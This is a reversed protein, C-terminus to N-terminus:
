KWQVIPHSSYPLGWQGILFFEPLRLPTQLYTSAIYTCFSLVENQETQINKSPLTNIKWNKFSLFNHKKSMITFKIMWFNLFLCVERFFYVFQAFSLERTQPFLLLCFGFIECGLGWLDQKAWGLLCVLSLWSSSKVCSKKTLEENGVWVKPLRYSQDQCHFTQWNLDKWCALVICTWKSSVRTETITKNTEFLRRLSNVLFPNESRLLQKM